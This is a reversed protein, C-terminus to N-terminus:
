CEINQIIHSLVSLSNLVNRVFLTKSQNMRTRNRLAEMEPAGLAESMVQALPNLHHCKMHLINDCLPPSGAVPGPRLIRIIEFKAIDASILTRGAM